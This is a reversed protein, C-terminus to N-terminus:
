CDNKQQFLATKKPAYTRFLFPFQYKKEGKPPTKTSKPPTKTSRKKPPPPPPPPPQAARNKKPTLKQCGVVGSFQSNGSQNTSKQTSSPTFASIELRPSNVWVGSRPKQRPFVSSQKSWVGPNAEDRQNLGSEWHCKKEPPGDQSPFPGGFDGFFSTAHRITVIRSRVVSERDPM